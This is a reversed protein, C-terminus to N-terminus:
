FPYLYIGSFKELFSLHNFSLFFVISSV